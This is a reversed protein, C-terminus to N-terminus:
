MPINERRRAASPRPTPFLLPEVRFVAAPGDGTGPHHYMVAVVVALSLEAPRGAGAPGGLGGPLRGVPWWDGMVGSFVASFGGGAGFM